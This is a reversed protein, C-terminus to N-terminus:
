TCYACMSANLLQIHRTQLEEHHYDSECVASVLVSPKSRDIIFKERQSALLVGNPM